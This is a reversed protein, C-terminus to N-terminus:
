YDRLAFLVFSCFLFVSTKKSVSISTVVIAALNFLQMIM